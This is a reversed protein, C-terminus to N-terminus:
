RSAGSKEQQSANSVGMPPNGNMLFQRWQEHGLRQGSRYIWDATQKDADDTAKFWKPSQATIANLLEPFSPHQRMRELLDNLGQSM